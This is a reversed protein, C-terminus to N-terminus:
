IFKKTSCLKKYIKLCAWADLAAYRKQSETLIEADWNTIRQRKSIQKRFLIAYVKQLSRDDIDYNKVIDQLDIFGQPTFRMRRGMSVFDDKLSLGVKLIKPNSLLGIVSSPFDIKNLRFLFCIDDTALQLLSVSYSIGKVFAPRTETDFGIMEFKSLYVVAEDAEEVTQIEFIQGTFEEVSFQTIEEKTITKGM